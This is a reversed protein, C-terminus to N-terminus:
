VEVYESWNQITDQPQMNPIDEFEASVVNIGKAIVANLFDTNWQPYGGGAIWKGAEDFQVLAQQNSQSWIKLIMTDYDIYGAMYHSSVSILYKVFEIQEKEIKEYADWNPVTGGVQLTITEPTWIQIGTGFHENYADIITGAIDDVSETYGTVNGSGDAYWIQARGDKTAM